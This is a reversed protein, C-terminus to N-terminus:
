AASAARLRSGKWRELAEADFYCRTNIKIPAPFSMKPDNVWRDITRTTTQFDRAVEPKPRLKIQETM